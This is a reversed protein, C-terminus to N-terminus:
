IKKRIVVACVTNWDIRSNLTCYLIRYIYATGPCHWRRVINECGRFLQNPLIPFPQRRQKQLTSQNRYRERRSSPSPWLLRNSYVRIMGVSPTRSHPNQVNAILQKKLISLISLIPSFQTLWDTISELLAKKFGVKDSFSVTALSNNNFGRV